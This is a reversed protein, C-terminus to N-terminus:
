DPGVAIPRNGPAIWDSWSGAYLKVGEIGAEAMALLDHAATVGSGCYVVVEHGPQPHLDHFREALREAPLFRGQADLNEAFPKSIAGPIRGAIKDIPEHEGLYRPRERADVVRARGAQSERWLTEADWVLEGRLQGVFTCPTITPVEATTEFGAELWTKIGGDLVQVQDHGLWRLMFWLRSAHAGNADDYAVVRCGQHIGLKGLVARFQDPEPMPHRGTGGPVIPGSLDHELHAYIAGPLHAEAYARRGREIDAISFRCDVLRLAPDGLQAHLEIANILYSM